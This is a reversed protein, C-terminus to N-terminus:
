YAPYPVDGPRFPPCSALLPNRGLTGDLVGSASQRQGGAGPSVVTGDTLVLVELAALRDRWNFESAKARDKDSLFERDLEGCLYLGHQLNVEHFRRWSSIQAATFGATLLADYIENQASENAARILPTWYDDPRGGPPKHLVSTVYARLEPDQVAPM